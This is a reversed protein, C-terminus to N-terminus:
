KHRYIWSPSLDLYQVIPYAKKCVKIPALQFRRQLSIQSYM